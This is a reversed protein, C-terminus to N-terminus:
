NKMDVICIHQCFMACTFDTSIYVKGVEAWQLDSSFGTDNEDCFFLGTLRTAFYPRQSFINDLVQITILFPETSFSPTSRFVLGNQVTEM